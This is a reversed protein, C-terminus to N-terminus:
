FPSRWVLKIGVHKPRGSRELHKEAQGTPPLGLLSPGFNRVLGSQYCPIEDLHSEVGRLSDGSELKLLCKLLAGTDELVDSPAKAQV